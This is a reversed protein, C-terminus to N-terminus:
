ETTENDKRFIEHRAGMIWSRLNIIHDPNEINADRWEAYKEYTMGYELIIAMENPTLFDIDGFDCVGGVDDGVWHYERSGFLEISVNAALNDCEQRYRSAWQQLTKHHADRAPPATIFPYREQKM